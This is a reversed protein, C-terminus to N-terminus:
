SVVCSEGSTWKEVAEVVEENGNQEAEGRLYVVDEKGVKMGRGVFFGIVDVRKCVVAQRMVQTSVRAGKGVMVEVVELM